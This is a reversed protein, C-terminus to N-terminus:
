GIIVLRSRVATLAVELRDRASWKVMISALYSKVTSEAINLATGIEGNSRGGCLLRVVDLERPSLAARSDAHVGARVPDPPTTLQAATLQCFTFLGYSAAAIAGRLDDPPSDRAVVARAGAEFLGLMTQRTTTGVLAIIPLGPLAAAVSTVRKLCDKTGAGCDVIVVSDQVDSWELREALLHARIRSHVGVEALAYGIARLAFVEDALLLM